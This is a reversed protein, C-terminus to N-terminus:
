LKAEVEVRYTAPSGLEIVPDIFVTTVITGTKASFERMAFSILDELKAKAAKADDVNMMTTMM